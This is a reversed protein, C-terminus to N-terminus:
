NLPLPQFVTDCDLSVDSSASMQHGRENRGTGLSGMFNDLIARHDQRQNGHHANLIAELRRARDENRAALGNIDLTDVTFLSQGTPPRPMPPALSPNKSVLHQRTAGTIDPINNPDQNRQQQHQLLADQQMELATNTRPVEPYQCWFSIRSDTPRSYKIQNFTNVTDQAPPQPKPSPIVPKLRIPPPYSDPKKYAPLNKRLQNKLISLNQLVNSDTTSQQPPLKIVEPSPTDFHTHNTPPAQPLAIASYSQPPLAPPTTDNKLLKAPIPSKPPTAPHRLAPIPPSETPRPNDRLTPIPPSKPPATPRPNDRLTPIPPSKPPATLRPNDRLTPIPPSQQRTWEPKIDNAMKDALLQLREQEEKERLKKKELEEKFRQEALEQKSLLPKSISPPSQDEDVHDKEAEMEKLARQRLREAENKIRMEEQEEEQQKKFKERMKEEEREKIQQQLEERQKQQQLMKKEEESLRPSTGDFSKRLLGRETVVNGTADTLPAGGGPKGWPDYVESEVKLIFNARKQKEREDREKKERVQEDLISRLTRAEKQTTRNDEKEWRVEREERFKEQQRPSPSSIRPPTSKREQPLYPNYMDPAQFQPPYYQGRIPMPYPPFPPYYYPTHSQYPMYSSDYYHSPPYYHSPYNPLQEERKDRYHRTAERPSPDPSPKKIIPRPKTEEINSELLQHKKRIQERLESRYQSQRQKKEDLTEERGISLGVGVPASFSRSGLDDHLNASSQLRGKRKVWEHLGKEDEDWTGTVHDTMHYPNTHRGPIDSDRKNAHGFGGRSDHRSLEKAREQAMEHRVAAISKSRQQPSYREAKDRLFSVYEERMERRKKELEAARGDDSPLIGGLPRFLSM